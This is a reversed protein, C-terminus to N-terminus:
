NPKNSQPQLPSPLLCASNHADNNDMISVNQKNSEQKAQVQVKFGSSFPDIKLDPSFPDNKPAVSVKIGSNLPKPPSFPDDTMKPSFPDQTGAGDFDGSEPHFSKDPSFPDQQIPSFPDRHIIEFPDSSHKSKSDLLSFEDFSELVGYNSPQPAFPDFNKKLGDPSFPDKPKPSKSPADEAISNDGSFDSLDIDYNINSLGPALHDSGFDDPTMLEDISRSDFPTFGLPSPTLLELSNTQKLDWSEELNQPSKPPSPKEIAEFGLINLKEESEIEEHHEEIKVVPEPARTPIDEVEAPPEAPTTEEKPSETELDILPQTNNLKGFQPTIERRPTIELPTKALVDQVKKAIQEQSVSM